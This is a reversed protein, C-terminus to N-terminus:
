SKLNEARGHAEQSQTQDADSALYHPSLFHYFAVPTGGECERPVVTGQDTLNRRRQCHLHSGPVAAMEVMVVVPNSPSQPPLSPFGFHFGFCPIEVM